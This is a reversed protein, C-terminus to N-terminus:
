LQAFNIFHKEQFHKHIINVSFNPQCFVLKITFLIMKPLLNQLLISTQNKNIDRQLDLKYFLTQTCTLPHENVVM